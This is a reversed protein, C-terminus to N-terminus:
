SPLQAITTSLILYATAVSREAVHRLGFLTTAKYCTATIREPGFFPGGGSLRCQTEAATLCPTIRGLFKPM